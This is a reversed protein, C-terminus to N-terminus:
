GRFAQSTSPGPSPTVCHPQSAPILRIAVPHAVAQENGTPPSPSAAPTTQPPSAPHPKPTRDSGSYPFVIDLQTGAPIAGPHITFVTDSGPARVDRVVVQGIVSGNGPIAQYPYPCQSPSFQVLAPVGAASLSRQLGGPDRFERLTVTVTDDAARSVTWATLTAPKPEQGPGIAAVAAVALAAAAAASTGATLPLLWRRRRRAPRTGALMLQRRAAQVTDPRLGRPPDMLQQIETIEDM